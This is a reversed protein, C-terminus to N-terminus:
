AGHRQLARAEDLYDYNAVIYGGQSIEHGHFTGVVEFILNGVTAQLINSTLPDPRMHWGYKSAIDASIL